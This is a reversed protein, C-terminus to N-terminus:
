GRPLDEGGFDLEAPLTDPTNERTLETESETETTTDAGPTTEGGVTTEKESGQGCGALSSALLLGALIGAITAKKM